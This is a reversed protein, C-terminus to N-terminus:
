DGRLLKDKLDAAETASLFGSDVLEKLDKLEEICERATRRETTNLSVGYYSIFSRLHIYILFPSARRFAVALKRFYVGFGCVSRGLGVTVM